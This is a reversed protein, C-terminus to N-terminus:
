AEHIRQRALDYAREGHRELWDMADHELAIRERRWAEDSPERTLARRVAGFAYRITQGM